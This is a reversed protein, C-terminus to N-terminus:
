IHYKRILRAGVNDSVSRAPVRKKLGLSRRSGPIRRPGNARAVSRRQTVEILGPRRCLKATARAAAAVSETGPMVADGPGAWVLGIEREHEFGALRPRAIGPDRFSDPMVTIGLGARVMALARDDSSTRFSFRPRVGHETFHRSTESLVECHRRVIMVENELEDPAVVADNARPHWTPMALAYRERFLPEQLMQDHGPRLITMALDIRRRLLRGM